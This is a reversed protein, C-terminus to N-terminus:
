AARAGRRWASPSLGMHRKFARSFAAESGYGVEEAVAALGTDSRRLRSRAVTMRWRTLYAAPPEGVAETFRSFFASRSMGAERALGAVTWPHAPEGHIRGIARGLRADTLAGLWGSGRGASQEIWARLVHVFLLDALRAILVASGPRQARLEDAMLRLTADLWGTAGQVHIVPPLLPLLLDRGEPDLAFTGCLLSTPAGGGGGGLCPLGDPGPETPWASIHRVASAPGDRLVHPHGHPMVLLDGSRFARVPEGDVELFGSGAVVAHFVGAAAGRPSVGWPATLEARSFLSGEVRVVALLESLGDM